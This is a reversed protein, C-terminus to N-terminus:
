TSQDKTRVFMFVCFINRTNQFNHQIVFINFQSSSQFCQSSCTSYCFKPFNLKLKCKLELIISHNIANHRIPAVTACIDFKCITRDAPINWFGVNENSVLNLTMFIFTYSKLNSYICFQIIKNWIPNSFYSDCM